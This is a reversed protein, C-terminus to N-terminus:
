RGRPLIPGAGLDAVVCVARPYPGAWIERIPTLGANKFVDCGCVRQSLILGHFACVSEYIAEVCWFCGSAFYATTLKEPNIIQQEEVETLEKDSIVEEQDIIIEIDTKDEKSTSNETQVKSQNCNIFFISFTFLSLITKM